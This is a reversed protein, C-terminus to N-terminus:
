IWESQTVQRCFNVGSSIMLGGLLEEEQEESSTVRTPRQTWHNTEVRTQRDNALRVPKPIIFGCWDAIDDCWGRPHRGRPRDGEVMTLMVTKVLRQYEMRGLRDNLWLNNCINM